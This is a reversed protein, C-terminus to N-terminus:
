AAGKDSAGGKAPATPASQGPAKMGEARYSWSVRARDKGENNKGSQYEVWPLATLGVFEVPTLPFPTDNKPPVPQHAAAFKVMVATENKGAEEDFDIVMVQWMLLGTDKDTQQPRSGDPRAAAKFDTIPEVSNPKIYAGAPFVDSSEVRIRKQMAM